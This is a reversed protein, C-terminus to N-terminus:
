ATKENKETMRRVTRNVNLYCKMARKVWLTLAIKTGYTITLLLDYVSVDKEGDEKYFMEIEDQPYFAKVLTYADYEFEKQNFSIGIM